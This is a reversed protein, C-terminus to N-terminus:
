RLRRRSHSRNTQQRRGGPRAHSQEYESFIEGFSEGSEPSARRNRTTLIRIYREYVHEIASLIGGGMTTGNSSCRREWKAVPKLTQTFVM